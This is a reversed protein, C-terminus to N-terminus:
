EDTREVLASAIAALAGDKVASSTTALRRAAARARAGIELVESVTVPYGTFRPPHDGPRRRPHQARAGRRDRGLRLEGPSESTGVARARGGRADRRARVERSAIVRGGAPAEPGTRRARA